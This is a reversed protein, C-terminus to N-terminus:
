EHPIGWQSFPIVTTKDMTVPQHSTFVILGGEAQHKQLVDCVIAQGTKDLNNFPEDLLWLPQSSILLRALSVRKQLGASLQQVQHHQYELLGLRRLINQIGFPRTVGALTAMFDINEKVSCQKKLGLEHSIFHRERCYSDWCQKISTQQWKITGSEPQLYGAMLKLLTTKGAGNDGQIQIMDGSSVSFADITFLPTNQRTYTCEHLTLM